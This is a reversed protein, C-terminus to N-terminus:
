AFDYPNVDIVIRAFKSHCIGKLIETIYKNVNFSVDCMFLIRMRYRNRLKYIMAKTPGMVRCCSHKPAKNVIQHAIDESEIACPSSVLISVIKGFPPMCLLKRNCIEIDYLKQIEDDKIVNIINNNPEYTQLIVKAGGEKRGSRGAVQHFTQYAREVSRFDDGYLMSDMSSVVVLQVNHFNQGKSVIQTGLIIDIMGNNIDDIEKRIKDPHDITDSSLETVRARPFIKKLIDQAKEIGIGILAINDSSCSLCKNSFSVSYGCYHCVLSNLNAHYCLWLSCMKCTFKEGCANCTIRPAYGRRNVFILAQKNNTICESIAQVSLETLFKDYVKEIKMDSVIVQPLSAEAFFRSSLRLYKYKGLLMNNHSEVSPTASALVIPINLLKALYVAMDRANYIPSDSQKYSKDHEEDIVICRLNKFPIFLSSRAGVVIMKEGSVARKWIKRKNAMTISTHWLYVNNPFYDLVKQEISVSLAIEPVLILTQSNDDIINAIFQLFVETKGSGTIGHLLFVNFTDKYALMQQLANSQEDNLLISNINSINDNSQPAVIKRRSNCDKITLSKHDFPLLLSYFNEVKSINYQAVFKCFEIYEERIKYPLVSLINKTVGDYDSMKIVIGVHTNNKLDIEVIHGIQLVTDDSAYTFIQKSKRIFICYRQEVLVAEAM